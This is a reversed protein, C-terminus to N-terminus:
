DSSAELLLGINMARVIENHTEFHHDPIRKEGENEM